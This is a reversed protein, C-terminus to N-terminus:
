WRSSSAAPSPAARTGECPSTASSPSSSAYRRSCASTRASEGDRRCSTEACSTCAAQAQHQSDRPSPFPSRSSTCAQGNTPSSSSRRSPPWGLRRCLQPHLDREQSNPDSSSCIPILKYMLSQLYLMLGVRSIGQSELQGLLREWSPDVNNSSFGKESDFGMHAVHNFGTPAGIMSKDIGGKKKKSSGSSKKAASSSSGSAKAAYKHRMSIKKFLEAAESESSFAIGIM